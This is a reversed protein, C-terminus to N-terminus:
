GAVIVATRCAARTPQQRGVSCSKILRAAALGPEVSSVHFFTVASATLMAGPLVSLRERDSARTFAFISPSLYGIGHATYRPGMIQLYNEPQKGPTRSRAPRLTYGLARLESVAQRVNGSARSSELRRIAPELVDDGTGAGRVDSTGSQIDGPRIAGGAAAAM